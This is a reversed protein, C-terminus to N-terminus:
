PRREARDTGGLAGIVRIAQRRELQRLQEKIALRGVEFKEIDTTSLAEADLALKKADYIGTERLLWLDRIGFTAAIFTALSGLAPLLTAVYHGWGTKTDIWDLGLMSTAVFGSLSGVVVLLVYYRQMRWARSTYWDVEERIEKILEAQRANTPSEPAM